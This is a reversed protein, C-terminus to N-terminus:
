SLKLKCYIDELATAGAGAAILNQKYFSDTCDGAAWVGETSTRQNKHDVKIYGRQNLEVLNKVFDTSPIMGIEVFVGTVNLENNEGTEKDKYVLGSVMKDGKIEEIKANKVTKVKPNETVEEIRVPDAAFQHHSDIVTVTKAYSVLQSATGFGANGGGIVAVDQGSFMPADCTACYTIGKNEFRDAGKVSLKRRQGGSCVLLTLAEYDEKLTKILFSGDENKEISKVTEGDKIELFDGEYSRVHEQIMKGFERGPMSTVGLWNQIDHAVVSQGGFNKTLFVTKLKKRAAYVAATGGAPGGGVIALEYM